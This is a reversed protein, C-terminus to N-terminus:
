SLLQEGLGGGEKQVLVVSLLKEATCERASSDIYVSLHLLFFSPDGFTRWWSKQNNRVFHRLGM